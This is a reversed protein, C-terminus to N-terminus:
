PRAPISWSASAQGDIRVETLFHGRPDRPISLSRVGAQGVTEAAPPRKTASRERARADGGNMKDAMQAM